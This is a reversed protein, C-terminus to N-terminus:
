VPWRGATPRSFGTTYSVMVTLIRSSRFAMSEKKVEPIHIVENFRPNFLKDFLIENRKKADALLKNYSVVEFYANREPQYGYYGMGDPTIRLGADKCHSVMKPTLDCIAFCRFATKSCDGFTLGNARKKQGSVIKDIYGGMQSLPNDKVNDPKKFEVITITNLQSDDDSYAFARDFM